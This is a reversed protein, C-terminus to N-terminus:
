SDGVEMGERLLPNLPYAHLTPNFHVCVSFSPSYNRDTITIYINTRVNYFLSVGSQRM